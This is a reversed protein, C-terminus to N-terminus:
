EVDFTTSSLTRDGLLMEVRWTGRPASPGIQCKCQTPWVSATTEQTSYSNQKFINGGPDIWNCRLPLNEGTPVDKLTVRFFVEDGARSVKELNGGDDVTRTIRSQDASIRDYAASSRWMSVSILLIVAFVAAAVAIYIRKKRKQERELAERRKLQEMADDLLDVPLSLEKLVLAVQQRDLTQREEDERQQALRTLEAVVKGVEDHSLRKEM